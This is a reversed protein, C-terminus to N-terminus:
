LIIRLKTSAAGLFKTECVEIAGHQKYFRNLNPNLTDLVILSAGHLKAERKAINVIRGGIGASRFREDVYVHTLEKVNTKADLSQHDGLRFMAIPQDAYKLLYLEDAIAKTMERRKALGPNGRLYGWKDEIWKSVQHLCDDTKEEALKSIKLEHKFKSLSLYSFM